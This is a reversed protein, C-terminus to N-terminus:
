HRHLEPHQQQENSDEEDLDETEFINSICDMAVIAFRRDRSILKQLLKVLLYGLDKFEGAATVSIGIAYDEVSTIRGQNLFEEGFRSDLTSMAAFSAVPFRNENSAIADLIHQPISDVVEQRRRRLEQKDM